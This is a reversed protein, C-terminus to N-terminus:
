SDDWYPVSYPVPYGIPLTYRKLASVRADVNRMSARYVKGISHIGSFVVMLATSTTDKQAHENKTSINPNPEDFLLHYLESYLPNTPAVNAIKSSLKKFKKVEGLDKFRANYVDLRGSKELLEAVLEDDTYKENAAVPKRYFVYEKLYWKFIEDLKSYLVNNSAKDTLTSLLLRGDNDTLFKNVKKLQSADELQIEVRLLNQGEIDFTNNIRDYSAGLTKATQASLRENLNVLTDCNHKDKYEQEKAYFKFVLAGTSDRERIDHKSHTLCLSANHKSSSLQLAILRRYKLCSLMEICACTPVSLRLDITLHLKTISVIGQVAVDPIIGSLGQNFVRESPMQLNNKVYKGERLQRTPTIDIILNGSKTFKRGAIKGYYHELNREICSIDFLPFLEHLKIRNICFRLKDVKVECFM